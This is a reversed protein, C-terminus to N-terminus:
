FKIKHKNQQFVSSNKFRSRLDAIQRKASAVPGYTGGVNGSAKAARIRNRYDKILAATELRDVRRGKKFAGPEKGLARLANNRARMDAGLTPSAPPLKVPATPMKMGNFAAKIRAQRLPDNMARM